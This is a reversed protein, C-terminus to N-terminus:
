WLYPRSSGAHSYRGTTPDNTFAGDNRGMEDPHAFYVHGDGYLRNSGRMFRRCENMALDLKNDHGHNTYLWFMNNSWPHPNFGNDRTNFYMNLDVVMLKSADNTMRRPAASRPSDYWEVPMGMARNKAVVDEDGLGVLYLYNVFYDGPHGPWLAGADYVPNMILEQSPCVMVELTLGFDLCPEVLTHRDWAYPYASHENPPQALPYRGKNANAYGILAMGIQRLNSGCQVRKAQERAKRLSPLLIAILLGIIGIVVLLEVLTFGPTFGRFGFGRPGRRCGAARTCAHPSM